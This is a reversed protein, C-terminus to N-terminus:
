IQFVDICFRFFVYQQHLVVVIVIEQLIIGVPYINKTCTRLLIAFNSGIVYFKRKQM